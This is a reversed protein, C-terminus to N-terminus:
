FLRAIPPELPLVLTFTSGVGVQSVLEVRGGHAETIAQVIALGLGAGDSRRQRNSARAFREFIREQDFPAIGEGTDRVWLQVERRGISAGIEILDSPRTSQIANQILNLMAGTLRQRDGRMQGQGLCKLQWNRNDFSSSKLTQAKVFIEKVFASVELIELQLFDPREAKALLILDNVIRSMRDLEDMVISLTEQQEQPDDGMLELHGQIITIPTRLEHGADNIFSRQSTFADQLRSMMANFTTALEAMEGSGEITPLRQSLDSEGISRATDVLQRVPTLLQAIAFWAIISAILVVGVAVHAFVIVSDLAEQREGVTTHAVVFAGQIRGQMVLPQAIYLINGIESDTTAYKGSIPHGLNSWRQSLPSGPQLVAPLVMPNSRYVRDGVVAILFNDDQPLQQMLYQELFPQLEAPDRRQEHEWQRYTSRFTQMEQNLDRRVREDVKNFLLFLFVPISAAAVVLMLVVYMLLIRTRTEGLFRHWWDFKRGLNPSAIRKPPKNFPTAM